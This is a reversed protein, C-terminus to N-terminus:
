SRKSQNEISWKASVEYFPTYTNYFSQIQQPDTNAFTLEDYSCDELILPYDPAM